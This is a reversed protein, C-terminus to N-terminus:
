PENRRSGIKEAFNVLQYATQIYVKLINEKIRLALMALM